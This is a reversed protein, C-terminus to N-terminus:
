IRELIDLEDIPIIYLKTKGRTQTPYTTLDAGKMYYANPYYREGQKDEATIQIENHTGVKHSAIGVSRSNWIPTRIKHVHAPTTRSLQKVSM